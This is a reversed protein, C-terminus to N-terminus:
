SLHDYGRPQDVRVGLGILMVGSGAVVEGVRTLGIGFESRFEAEDPASEPAFAVLLEYEEGSVAAADPSVGEVCPLSPLALQL